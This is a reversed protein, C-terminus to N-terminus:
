KPLKPLKQCSKTVKELKQFKDNNAFKPMMEIKMYIYLANLMMNLGLRM